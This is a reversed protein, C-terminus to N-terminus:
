LPRYGPCTFKSKGVLTALDHYGTQFTVSLPKGGPDPIELTLNSQPKLMPGMPLWGTSIELRNDRWTGKLPLSGGTASSVLRGAVDTRPSYNGAGPPHPSITGAPFRLYISFSAPQFDSKYSNILMMQLEGNLWTYLSYYANANMGDHAPYISIRPEMIFRCGDASINMRTAPDFFMSATGSYISPEDALGSCSAKLSEALRRADDIRTKGVVFRISNGLVNIGPGSLTLAEASASIATVGNWRIHYPTISSAYKDAYDSARVVTQCGRSALVHYSYTHLDGSSSVDFGYAVEVADRFKQHDTGSQAVAPSALALGAALGLLCVAIRGM